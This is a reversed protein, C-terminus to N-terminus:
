ICARLLGIQEASLREGIPPMMGDPDTSAVRLILESKASEGNVIVLGIFGGRLAPDRADLRLEAEQKKPGHCAYCHQEFIPRIDKAYNVQRDDAMASYSFALFAILVFPKSLLRSLRRMLVIWGVQSM